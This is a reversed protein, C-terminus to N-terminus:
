SVTHFLILTYTVIHSCLQPDGRFKGLADDHAGADPLLHFGDDIDPLDHMPVPADDFEIDDEADPLAGFGADIDMAPFEAFPIPVSPFITEGFRCKSFQCFQLQAIPALPHGIRPPPPGGGGVQQTAQEECRMTIDYCEM